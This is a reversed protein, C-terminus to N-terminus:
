ESASATASVELVRVNVLDIGVFRQNDANGVIAERMAEASERSDYTLMVFSESSERDLTWTGYVFGPHQQVGPVIMEDLGRRQEEERALDMRFTALTAHSPRSMLSM